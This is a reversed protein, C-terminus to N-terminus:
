VEVNFTNDKTFEFNNECSYIKILLITGGKIKTGLECKSLYAIPTVGGGMLFFDLMNLSFIILRIKPVAILIGANLTSLNLEPLVFHLDGMYILVHHFM